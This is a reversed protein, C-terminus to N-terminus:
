IIDDTNKQSGIPPQFEAGTGIRIEELNKWFQRFIKGVWLKTFFSQLINKKHLTKM